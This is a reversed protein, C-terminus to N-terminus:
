YGHRQLSIFAPLISSPSSPFTCIASKPTDAHSDVPLSIDLCFTLCVNTPVGHQIAGSTMCCTLVLIKLYVYNIVSENKCILYFNRM